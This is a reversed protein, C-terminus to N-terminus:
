NPQYKEIIDVYQKCLITKDYQEEALRRAKEGMEVVTEPHQKLHKIKEALEEPKGPDVFYGCGEKEVIEKTWGASNVIIPKGASLSDFFKNPSNTYLIPLDLFSVISVDCFNVIESTTAMPHRGLFHVNDLGFESALGKLEDETSGGGLLIFEILPDGDLMRAAETIYHAGNALGLSGFHIVKLSNRKLKFKDVLELNPDRPW